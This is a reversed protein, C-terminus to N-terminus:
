AVRRRLQAAVEAFVRDHIARVPTADPHPFGTNFGLRQPIRMLTSTQGHYTKKESWGGARAPFMVWGLRESHAVWHSPLHSARYLTLM